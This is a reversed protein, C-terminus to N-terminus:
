AAVAQEIPPTPQPHSPNRNGVQPTSITAFMGAQDFAVAFQRRATILTRAEFALVHEDACEITDIFQQREPKM